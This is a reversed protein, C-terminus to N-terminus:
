SFQLDDGLLPMLARDPVGSWLVADFRPLEPNQCIVQRLVIRIEDYDNALPYANM